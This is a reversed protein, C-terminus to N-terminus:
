RYKTLIWNTRTERDRYLQLYVNTPKMRYTFTYPITFNLENAAVGSKFRGFLLRNNTCPAVETFFNRGEAAEVAVGAIKSERASYLKIVGVDDVHIVGVELGDVQERSLQSLSQLEPESLLTNM